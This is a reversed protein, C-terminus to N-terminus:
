PVEAGSPSRKISFTGPEIGPPPVESHRCLCHFGLDVAPEAAGPGGRRRPGFGRADELLGLQVPQARHAAVAARVHRRQDTDRVLAHHVEARAGVLLLGAVELVIRANRQGRAVVGPRGPEIDNDFPGRQAHRLAVRQLSEGIGILRFVAAHPVEIDAVADEHGLLAAAAATNRMSGAFTRAKAL